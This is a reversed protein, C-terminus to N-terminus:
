ENEPLHHQSNECASEKAVIRELLWTCRRDGSTPVASWHALEDRDLTVHALAREWIGWSDTLIPWDDLSLRRSGDPAMRSLPITEGGFIRRALPLPLDVLRQALGEVSMLPASSASLFLVDATTTNADSMSIRARCRIRELPAAPSAHLSVRKAAFPFIGFAADGRQELLWFAVLQGACDLLAPDLQMSGDAFATVVADGAIRDGALVDVCSLGRFRPGHFAYEEYFRVASWRKPAAGHPPSLALARTPATSCVAEFAPAAFSPEFIRVRVEAGSRIAEIRVDLMGRDLALWRFARVETLTTVRRGLLRAAAEAALELTGTFPLLPLAGGLAHDDLWPDSERTFRRHAILTAATVRVDDGLLPGAPPPAAIRVALRQQADAILRRQSIAIAAWRDHAPPTETDLIPRLDGAVALGQTFLEALLVLLQELGGRHMSSASVALHPRERLTDRVFASLKADPGIEVFTRVGFDYLQEVTERFRVPSTWQRTISARCDDPDSPLPSATLCSWVPTSPAVLPLTAYYTALHAAWPAFLPTHYARNFPLVGAVGGMAVVREALRQIAALTGGVLQQNPCNDMALFLADPEMGVLQALRRSDVASVALMAEDTAPAPIRRGALSVHCFGRCLEDRDAGPLMGGAILAAHEGNSHGVVVDARIGLRTVVEHLALDAVTGHHAEETTYLARANAREGFLSETAPREGAAVFARDLADYWGRVAPVEGYLDRLMGPHQSGQGPFLFAVKGAAAHTAHFIGAPRLVLRPRQSQELRQRALALREPFTAQPAVIALREPGEGGGHVDGGAIMADLRVLLSARDHAAILLLQNV